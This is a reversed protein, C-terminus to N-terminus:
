DVRLFEAVFGDGEVAFPEIFGLLVEDLDRAGCALPM